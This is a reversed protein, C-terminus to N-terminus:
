WSCHRLKWVLEHSESQSGPWFPSQQVWKISSLVLDLTLQSASALLLDQAMWELARDELAQLKTQIVNQTYSGGIPEAPAQVFGDERTM